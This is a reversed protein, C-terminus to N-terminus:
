SNISNVADLGKQAVGQPLGVYGPSLNEAKQGETLVWKLFDKIAVAQEHTYHKGGINKWVIIHTFAVIPYSNEGPANLLQKLDEKYGEEPSPINSQVGAVAAQIAEDTPKVYKGDANQLYAVPLKEEIAFSLETYCISYQTQKLTSVVGPNGKGGLGRGVDDTPWDVSKGAGVEKAWTENILSLYTTFIATTGSSDSRHVVIIKQHPLEIGPNEDAIAPDDWYEIDGIFIGVLADRSLKIDKIGPLNYSVVVAGVVEPFQLPQDGTAKLKNWVSESVPPDSRGIQTLGQMFAEQGHGSGGGEYEIKVNPHSQQYIDIWKQIQYQPFTAGTTRLVVTNSSNKSTNMVVFAAGIISVIAIVGIVMKATKEM